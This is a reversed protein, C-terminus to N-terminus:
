LRQKRTCCTFINNTSWVKFYCVTFWIPVQALKTGQIGLKAYFTYNFHACNKISLSKSSLTVATLPEVANEKFQTQNKVNIPINRPPNEQVLSAAPSVVGGDHKRDHTM